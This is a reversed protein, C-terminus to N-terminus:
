NLMAFCAAFLAVTGAVAIMLLVLLTSAVASALSSVFLEVKQGTTVTAGAEAHRNVMQITRVWAFFAVCGLPIGWGPAITIVGLVVCALTMFLMLSTPSFYNASASLQSAAFASFSKQRSHIESTPSRLGCLWCELEGVAVPAGCRPCRLANSTATDRPM